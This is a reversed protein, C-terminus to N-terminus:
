NVIFQTKDEKYIAIANEAAMVSMTSRTDLSASGVHPVIVVNDLKLLESHIQPEKEFVDLGAGAIWNEKLAKVLTEENVVSGRATNILYATEKMMKLEEEDILHYTEDSLPVHLSVFDSEKLLEEKSVRVANVSEELAKNASRSYYLVKMDFGLSRRAMASGISGSGIIGLTKHHIDGGLMLMPAWGEFKGERTYKDGKVIKRSISMLLAWALDATTDSLVGPTNSVLINRKSAETIDINNYGAAYNSIGKLNDNSCIVEADINDTLMTLLIDCDNMNAIIEEKSLMRDEENM